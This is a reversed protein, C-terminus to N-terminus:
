YFNTTICSTTCDQWLLLNNAVRRQYSCEVRSLIINTILRKLDLRYLWELKVIQSSCSSWVYGISIYSRFIVYEFLSIKHSNFNIQIYLLFHFIFVLILVISYSNIKSKITNLIAFQRYFEKILFVFALLITMFLYMKVLHFEKTLIKLIIM